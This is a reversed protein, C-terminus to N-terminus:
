KMQQLLSGDKSKNGLVKMKTSDWDRYTRMEFNVIKDEADKIPEDYSFIFAGDKFDIWGIVIRGSGKKGQEKLIYSVIDQDYIDMGSQDKRLSCLLLDVDKGPTSGEPTFVKMENGIGMFGTVYFIKRQERHYAKLKIAAM